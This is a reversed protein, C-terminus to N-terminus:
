PRGVVQPIGLQSARRAERSARGALPRERGVPLNAHDVRRNRAIRRLVEERRYFIEAGRGAVQTRRGGVAAFQARGQAIRRRAGRGGAVGGMMEGDDSDLDDGADVDADDADMTGVGDLEDDQTENDRAM